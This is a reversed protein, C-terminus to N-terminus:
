TGVSAPSIRGRSPITPFVAATSRSPAAAALSQVNPFTAVFRDFHPVVAAVTTQQLMAESVWIRYPDRNARWPLDRQYRDFWNMLARRLGVMTRPTWSDPLPFPADAM